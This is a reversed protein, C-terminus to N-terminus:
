GDLKGPCYFNALRNTKFPNFASLATIEHQVRFGDINFDVVFLENSQSSKRKANKFYRYWAWSGREQKTVIKGSLLNLTIVVGEEPKPGPWTLERTRPASHDYTVVKNGEMRMTFNGIRKDMKLPKINFSMKPQNEGFAFYSRKIDEARQFMSLSAASLSLAGSGSLKNRWPRKSTDVYPKLHRDFFEDMVGGYGFFRGFDDLRIINKASKKIPYRASIAQRCFELPEARWLQNLHDMIGGFAMGSSRDAVDEIMNKVLSPQEDAEIRLKQVVARGEQSVEPRLTGGQTEELHVQEVFSELEGIMELVSNIPAPEEGEATVMDNLDSFTESVVDVDRPIDKPSAQVDPNNSLLKDLLKTKGDLVKSVGALKSQLATENKIANLFKVLPSRAPDALLGLVQMAERSSRFSVLRVDDVLRRYQKAYDLEYVRKIDSYLNNARQTKSGFSDSLVWERESLLNTITALANAKFFVYGKKTYLPSIGDRLSAGSKREFVKQADIEGAVSYVNFGPADQFQITLEDKIRKYLWKDLPIDVLEKQVETILRERRTNSPVPYEVPDYLQAFTQLSAEDDFGLKSATNDASLFRWVADADYREPSRFMQYVKLAEYRIDASQEVNFFLKELRQLVLPMLLNVLVREHLADSREALKPYQSLGYAFRVDDARGEGDAIDSVEDILALRARPRSAKTNIAVDLKAEVEQVAADVSAVYAKNNFYSSAWLGLATVTVLLVGIYAANNLLRLKREAVVNSSVLGAEPFVVKTLLDHLFFSKGSGSGQQNDRQQLQLRNALSGVLRDLPSGEQTGSTFYVGRLMPKEDGGAPSEFVDRIFSVIKDKQLAMQQPFSLIPGRRRLDSEDLLRSGVRQNLRKVLLDFEHEYLRAFENSKDAHNFTCGWVQERDQQGLDEFFEAFGPLLDMKTILFYVPLKVKLREEVEKLRKKIAMSHELREERADSILSPLSISVMIGNLPRRRRYKKLLDLFSLWEAEDSRQESDQSVYRGATDILVAKDTFWWDCNRTGSVGHFAESGYRDELPFELGSKLLATTKGSGPPGIIIYWPLDYLNSKLSRGKLSEIGEEFRTAMAQVTPHEEDDAQKQAQAKLFEVIQRSGWGSRIKRIFWPIFLGFLCLGIFVLRATLSGLPRYDAFSFLPGALMVFVVFLIFIVIRIFLRSFLVRGILKFM